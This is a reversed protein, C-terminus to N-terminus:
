PAVHEFHRLWSFKWAAGRASIFSHTGGCLRMLHHRNIGPCSSWDITFVTVLVEVHAVINVRLDECFYHALMIHGLSEWSSSLSFCHFSPTCLLFVQVAAALVQAVNRQIATTLLLHSSCLVGNWKTCLAPPQWTSMFILHTIYLVRSALEHPTSWNRCKM